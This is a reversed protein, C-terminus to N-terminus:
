RTEQSKLEYCRVDTREYNRRTLLKLRSVGAAVIFNILTRSM